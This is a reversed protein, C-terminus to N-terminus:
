PTMGHDPREHEPGTRPEGFEVGADPGLADEIIARACLSALGKFADFVGPLHAVPKALTLMPIAGDMTDPRALVAHLVDGEDRIAVRGVAPLRMTNSDM